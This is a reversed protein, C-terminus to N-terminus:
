QRAEQDHDRVRGRREDRQGEDQGRPQGLAQARRLGRHHLVRSAPKDDVRLHRPLRQRHPHLHRLLHSRQPTTLPHKLTFHIPPLNFATPHTILLLFTM